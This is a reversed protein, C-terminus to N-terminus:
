RDDAPSFNSEFDKANQDPHRGAIEEVNVKEEVDVKEGIDVKKELLPQLKGDTAVEDNTTVDANSLSDKIEQETGATVISQNRQPEFNFFYFLGGITISSFIFIWGIRIKKQMRAARDDAEIKATISPWLRDEPEESFQKLRRSLENDFSEDMAKM